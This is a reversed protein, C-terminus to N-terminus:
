RVETAAPAGEAKAIAATQIAEEEWCNKGCYQIARAEASGSNPVVFYHYREQDRFRYVKVGDHIFLLDVQYNSGNTTAPGSSQPTRPGECAACVLALFVIATCQIARV